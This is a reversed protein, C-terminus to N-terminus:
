LEALPNVKKTEMRTFVHNFVPEGEPRAVKQDDTVVKNEIQNDLKSLLKQHESKMGPDKMFKSLTMLERPLPESTEQQQKADDDMSQQRYHASFQRSIDESNQLIKLIKENPMYSYSHGHHAQHLNKSPSVFKHEYPNTGTSNPDRPKFMQAQQSSYAMMQKNNRYRQMAEKKLDSCDGKLRGFDIEM